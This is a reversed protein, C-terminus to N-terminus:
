VFATKRGQIKINEAVLRVAGVHSCIANANINCRQLVEYSFVLKNVGFRHIGAKVM